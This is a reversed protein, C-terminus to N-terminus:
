VEKNEQLGHPDPDDESTEVFALIRKARAPHRLRGFARGMVSEIERFFVDCEDGIEKFSKEERFFERIVFAGRPAITELIDSVVEDFQKGDVSDKLKVARYRFLAEVFNEPWHSGRARMHREYNLSNQKCEEAFEVLGEDEITLYGLDQRLEELWKAEKEDM